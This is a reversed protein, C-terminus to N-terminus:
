VLLVGILENRRRAEGLQHRRLNDEVLDLFAVEGQLFLEDDARIGPALAPRRGAARGHEGGNMAPHLDGVQDLADDDMGAVVCTNREGLADGTVLVVKGAQHVPAGM